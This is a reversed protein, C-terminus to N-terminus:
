FYSPPFDFHGGPKNDSGRERDSHRRRDIRLHHGV